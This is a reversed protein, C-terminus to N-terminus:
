KSPYYGDWFSRQSLSTSAL